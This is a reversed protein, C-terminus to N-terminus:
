DTEIKEFKKAWINLYSDFDKAPPSGKKFYLLEKDEKEIHSRFEKILLENKTKNLELREDPSLIDPAEFENLIKWSTEIKEFNDDKKLVERSNSLQKEKNAKFLNRAVNKENDKDDKDSDLIEEIINIAARIDGLRNNREFNSFLERADNLKKDM